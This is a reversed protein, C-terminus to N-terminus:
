AKADRRAQKLAIALERVGRRIEAPRVAAFGLQLGQLGHGGYSALSTVDVGRARAAKVGADASVGHLWGVTQLGAEVESLELVGLLERGGEELLVNLREAYVERMRRVHRAFHGEAIFEALVAQELVPCHRSTISKLAAVREVLADPVVMYGLRLAPFLVKSFSGAYLVLGAHGLGQMAPIPRGSYRFESDYDDEFIMAGSRRAWELLEMRRALRMTTGLPFQHGPTVYIMRLGRAPLRETRAGERDVAVESIKAGCARFVRHAGVYGPSEACVRDGPNLLLRATLDLAEQVGSVIAVQKAGCKVGRSATLYEAVAKRLPLYGLADCGMLQRVPTRRLSRNTIKAWLEIPFLDLAPLNARFARIPRDEYGSFARVRKGYASLTPKCPRRSERRTQRDPSVQLWQEPLVRSVYTGSGVSGEIYGESKLQEFASIVTGRALAYQRALDRTAPLRGGPLLRGELIASRLSGYLWRYAAEGASRPPVALDLVSARKPV